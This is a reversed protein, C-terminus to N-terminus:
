RGIGQSLNIYEQEHAEFYDPTNPYFNLTIKDQMDQLFRLEVLDQWNTTVSSDIGKFIKEHCTSIEKLLEKYGNIDSTITFPIRCEKLKKIGTYYNIAMNTMVGM